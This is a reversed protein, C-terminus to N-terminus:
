HIPQSQHQHIIALAEESTGGLHLASLQLWHHENIVKDVVQDFSPLPTLTNISM